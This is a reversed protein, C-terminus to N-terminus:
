FLPLLTQSLFIEHKPLTVNKKIYEPERACMLCITVDNLNGLQRGFSNQFNPCIPCSNIGEERTSGPVFMCIADTRM